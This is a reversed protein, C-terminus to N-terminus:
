SCCGNRYLLFTKGVIVQEMEDDSSGYVIGRCAAGAGQYEVEKTELETSRGHLASRVM